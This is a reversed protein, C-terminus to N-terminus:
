QFERKKKRSIFQISFQIWPLVLVDRIQFCSCSLARFLKQASILHVKRAIKREFGSWMTYSFCERTELTGNLHILWVAWGTTIDLWFQMNPFNLITKIQIRFCYSMQSSGHISTGHSLVVNKTWCNSYISVTTSSFPIKATWEWPNCCLCRYASTNFETRRWM